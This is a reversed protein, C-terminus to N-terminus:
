KRSFVSKSPPIKRRPYKKRPTHPTKANVTGGFFIGGGVRGSKPKSFLTFRAAFFSKGRPLGGVPINKTPLFQRRCLSALLSMLKVGGLLRLLRLYDSLDASDDGPELCGLGGASDQFPGV